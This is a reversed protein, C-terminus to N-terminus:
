YNLLGGVGYHLLEVTMKCMSTSMFITMGCDPQYIRPIKTGNIVRIKFVGANSEVVYVVLLALLSQVNCWGAIVM